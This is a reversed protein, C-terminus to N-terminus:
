NSLAQRMKWSGPHDTAQEDWGAIEIQTHILPRQGAQDPHQKGEYLSHWGRVGESDVQATRSGPPIGRLEM